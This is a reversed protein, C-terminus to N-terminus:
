QNLQILKGTVVKNDLIFRYILNANKQGPLNMDFNNVGAAVHGHYVTKVKQGVINFIELTGNGAHAANVVFKVQTNFPNPYAKVTTQDSAIKISQTPAVVGIAPPACNSTIDNCSVPASICGDSNKVQISSVSGSGLNNFIGTNNTFDTGDISYSFGSGGSASITVSGSNACLTPQVLCVTFTPSAPPANVTIDSGASSCTGNSANLGYTGTAVSSFTGDSAATYKVVGSQTLTYTIGSVPSTVTVTATSVTCTPQTVSASPAAPTSPQANVTVNSGNSSCSGNTATLGYTGTAVSSFTGDSAATYKVVGSQTLTYTVGSVPSTVTVTATSVTCTPQTVTAAPTAVSGTAVITRTRVVPNPCNNADTLNITYTGPALNSFTISDGAAVSVPTNNGLAVKYPATGGFPKVKISGLTTCTANVTDINADVGAIINLLPNTGCKPNITSTNALLIPCTSGPSADTWAEWINTLELSQGCKYGLKKPYPFNTTTNKPIPGFCGQIPTTSATTGDSNLITLTAWFAFSTRTSGTKNNIGVTLNHFVSDGQTCNECKVVDLTASVLSLDKSTCSSASPFTQAFSNSSIFFLLTFFLIKLPSFLYDAWKKDKSLNAPRLNQFQGSTFISKM